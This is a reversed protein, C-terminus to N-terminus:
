LEDGNPNRDLVDRGRKDVFAVALFKRGELDLERIFDKLELGLEKLYMVGDDEFTFGKPTRKLADSIQFAFLPFFGAVLKCFKASDPIEERIAKTRFFFQDFARALGLMENALRAEIDALLLRDELGSDLSAQVDAQEASAAFGSQEVCGADLVGVRRDGGATACSGDGLDSLSARAGATPTDCMAVTVATHMEDISLSTEKDM